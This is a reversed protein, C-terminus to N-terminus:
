MSDVKISLLFLKIQAFLNDLDSDNEIIIDYTYNEVEADAHNSATEIGPRRILISKANLEKCARAIEQPERIDIFVVVQDPSVDYTRYLNNIFRLEDKIYTMPADNYATVLDKLDSLFKRDKPTKVGNWGIRKAMDKIPDITSLIFVKHEGLAERVKNEFTTKGAGPGGNVIYIHM